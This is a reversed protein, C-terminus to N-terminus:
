DMNIKLQRSTEREPFSMDQRYRNTLILATDYVIYVTRLGCLSYVTGYYTNYQMIAAATWSIPTPSTPKNFEFIFLLHALSLSLSISVLEPDTLHKRTGEVSQRPFSSECWMRATNPVEPSMSVVDARSMVVVDRWFLWSWHTLKTGTQFITCHLHTTAEPHEGHNMHIRPESIHSM